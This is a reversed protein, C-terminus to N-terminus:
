SELALSGIGVHGDGGDLGRRGGLGVDLLGHLDRVEGGERGEGCREEAVLHDIHFDM